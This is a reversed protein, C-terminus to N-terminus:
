AVEPCIRNALARLWNVVYNAQCELCEADYDADRCRPAPFETEIIYIAANIMNYQLRPTLGKLYSDISLRQGNVIVTRPMTM